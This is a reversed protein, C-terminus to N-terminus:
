KAPVIRYIRDNVRGPATNDSVLAYLERDEDQAFGLAYSHFKM